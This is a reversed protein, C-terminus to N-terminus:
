RHLFQWVMLVFIIPRVNGSTCFYFKLYHIMGAESKECHKLVFHCQDAHAYINECKANFSANSNIRVKTATFSSISGNFNPSQASLVSLIKTSVINDSQLTVLAIALILFVVIVHARYRRKGYVAELRQTDRSSYLSEHDQSDM